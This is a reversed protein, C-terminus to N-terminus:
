AAQIGGCYQCRKEGLLVPTSCYPCFRYGEPPKVPGESEPLFASAVAMLGGGIVFPVSWFFVLPIQLLYFAAGMLAVLIGAVLLQSRM